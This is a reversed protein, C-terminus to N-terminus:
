WKTVMINRRKINNEDYKGHERSASPNEDMYRARFTKQWDISDLYCYKMYRQMFLLYRTNLRENGFLLLISTM